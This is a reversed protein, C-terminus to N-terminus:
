GNLDGILLNKPAKIFNNFCLEFEPCSQSLSKSLKPAVSDQGLVQACIPQHEVPHNMKVIHCGLIDLLIKSDHDIPCPKEQVVIARHIEISPM